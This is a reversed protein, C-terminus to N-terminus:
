NKELDEASTRSAWGMESAIRKLVEPDTDRLPKEDADGFLREGFQDRARFQVQSVAADTLAGADIVAQGGQLKIHKGVERSEEVSMEPWFFIESDWEPVAIKKLTEVTRAARFHTRAKLLVDSGRSM